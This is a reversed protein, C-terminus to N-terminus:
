RSSSSAIRRMSVSPRTSTSSGFSRSWMRSSSARKQSSVAHSSGSSYQSPDGAGGDDSGRERRRERRGCLLGRPREVNQDTAARDHIARARRREGRVHGQAAVPDDGDRARREVGRERGRDDLRAPADDRGTEDIRVRVNVVQGFARERLAEDALAHGGDHVRRVAAHGPREALVDRAQALAAVRGVDREEGAEIGRAPLDHAARVASGRGRLELAHLGHDVLGHALARDADRGAQAVHGGGVRRGLLDDLDRADGGAVAPEVGRVDTVLALTGDVRDGLDDADRALGAHGSLDRM